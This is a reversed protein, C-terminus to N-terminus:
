TGPWSPSRGPDRSLLRGVEEDYSAVASAHLGHGTPAENALALIQEAVARADDREARDDDPEPPVGLSEAVRAQVQEVFWERTRGRLLLLLYPDRDIAWALQYILALAHTCPQTWAECSCGTQLDTAAPLLEIGAQDAHELLEAPLQGTELAAVFGAERAAEAVLGDWDQLLTMKLQAVVRSGKAEIVVSAMSAIVMVAGLRGSRALTRAQALDAADYATEEASRVFARGWWTSSRPAAGRVARRRPLVTPDSM